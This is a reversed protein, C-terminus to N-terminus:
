ATFLILNSGLDPEAVVCGISFALLIFVAQVYAKWGRSGANRPSTYCQSCSGLIKLGCSYFSLIAAKQKVRYTKHHTEQAGACGM